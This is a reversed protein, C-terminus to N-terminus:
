KDDSEDKSTRREEDIENAMYRDSHGNKNFHRQPASPMSDNSSVPGNRQSTPEAGPHEIRRHGSTDHTAM